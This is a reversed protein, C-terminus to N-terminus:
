ANKSNVVSILTCEETIGYDAFSKTFDTIPNGDLQVSSAMTSIENSKLYDAIKTDASVIKTFFRTTTGGTVKIQKSTSNAM